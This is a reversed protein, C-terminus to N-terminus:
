VNELSRLQRRAQINAHNPRRENMAVAVGRRHTASAAEGMERGARKKTWGLSVSHVLSMSNLPFFEEHGAVCRHFHIAAWPNSLLKDFGEDPGILWGTLLDSDAAM